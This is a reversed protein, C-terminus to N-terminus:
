GCALYSQSSPRGHWLQRFKWWTGSVHGAGPRSQPAEAGYRLRRAEVVRGLLVVRAPEGHNRRQPATGAVVDNRRCQMGQAVQFMTTCHPRVGARTVTGTDDRLYWVPEEPGDDIELQGLRPVVRHPHSEQRRILTLPGNDPGGDAVQRCLLAERHQAPAGHGNSLVLEAGQGPPGHGRELLEEQGCVCRRTLLSGASDVEVTQREPEALARLPCKRHVKGGEAAAREDVLSHDGCKLELREVGVQAVLAECGAERQYM